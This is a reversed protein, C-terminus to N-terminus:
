QFQVLGGVRAGDVARHELRYSGRATLDRGQFEPFLEDRNKIILEGPTVGHPNYCGCDLISDGFTYLTTTTGQPRPHSM